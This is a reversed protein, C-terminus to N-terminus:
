LLWWWQNLTDNVYQVPCVPWCGARKMQQTMSHSLRTGLGNMLLPNM